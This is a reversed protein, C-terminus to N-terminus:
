IYSLRNKTLKFQRLDEKTIMGIEKAKITITTFPLPIKYQDWRKKLTICHSYEFQLYLLDKEAQQALFFVLKKPEHYPGLPGDFSTAFAGKQEKAHHIIDKYADRMGFGDHARVVNGEYKQLMEKIYDGRRDATILVTVNEGKRKMHRVLLQCTYSDGHWYGAIKDGLLAQEGQINITSTRAVLELYM